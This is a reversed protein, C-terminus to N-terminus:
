QKVEVQGRIEGGPHAKTHVNVYANGNALLTKLSDGSIDKSPMKTLDIYGQALTGSRIHKITFFFVPPGAEGVKGVHIHAMTAPGTLGLVTLSYRIRNGNLVFTATGTGSVKTPPTEHVGDMPATYTVPPAHRLPAPGSWAALAVLSAAVALLRTKM